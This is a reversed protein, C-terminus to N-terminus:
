IRCRRYVAPLRAPAAFAASGAYLAASRTVGGQAALATGMVPLLLKGYEMLEYATDSALNIMANTSGLLIAGIATVGSLDAVKKIGQSVPCLLGMLLAVAFIGGCLRSAERIDPGLAGTVRRILDTLGDAFTNTDEPMWKLAEGPPAPAEIELASAPVVVVSLILFVILFRM